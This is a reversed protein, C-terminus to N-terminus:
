ESDEQIWFLDKVNNKERPPFWISKTKDTINQNILQAFKQVDEENDFSVIIQRKAGCDEQKFDPMNQWHQDYFEPEEDWEFLEKPLEVKKKM